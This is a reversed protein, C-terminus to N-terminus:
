SALCRASERLSGGVRLKNLTRSPQENGVSGQPVESATVLVLTEKHSGPGECQQKKSPRLTIGARACLCVLPCFKWRLFSSLSGWSPAPFHVQELKQAM